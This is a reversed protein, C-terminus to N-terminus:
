YDFLSISFEIEHGDFASVVISSNQGITKLFDRDDKSAVLPGGDVHTHAFLELKQSMLMDVLIDAFECHYHTGHFLIDERKGRLIAFEHNTKASLFAIDNTTLSEKPFRAWDGSNPIRDLINKRKTNLGAQALRVSELSTHLSKASSLQIDSNKIEM